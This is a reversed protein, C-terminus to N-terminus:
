LYTPKLSILVVLLFVKGSVGFVNPRIVAIMQVEFQFVYLFLM